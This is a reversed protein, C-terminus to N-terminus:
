HNNTPLKLYFTTGTKGDSEVWISGGLRKMIGKSIALGLGTGGIPRRESTDIQYFKKFLNKQKEQPIGAGNDKVYLIVHDNEKYGGIEILGKEQPVFKIANSILNDFIQRLRSSDTNIVVDKLDIKVAFDIGQDKLVKKYGDSLNEFFDSLSLSEFRFKMKDIDLKRADMIDTILRELRRTNKEIVDIASAQEDSLKGFMATKFMKCYGIIPMLPTKLEHTVMASFEEKATDMRSLQETKIKLDANTEELKKSLIINYNIKRILFFGTLGMIIVVTLAILIAEQAETISPSFADDYPQITVILWEHIGIPVSRFTVFSIEGEITQTTTKTEGESQDKLDLPIKQLETSSEAKRTDAVINNNQDIVLLYENTGLEIQGLIRQLASLNLTSVWIGNLDRDATNNDYIPVAIAVVNHGTAASVYVESVYTSGTSIVGKYWDRFAFNSQSLEVQANFPELFYIDGNPMAYFVYDLDFDANLMNKAIAKKELEVDEPIGKLQESILNPYAPPKMISPIQSTMEMIGTLYQMRLEFRSSVLLVKNTRTRIIEDDLRKVEINNSVYLIALVLITAAVVIIITLTIEKNL